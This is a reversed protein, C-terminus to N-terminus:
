FDATLSLSYRRAELLFFQGNASPNWRFVNTLNQVQARLTAPADGISFRYRTGLNVVTRGPEKVTNARNFFVSSTNEVQGDVSMGNWTKPGYQLNVTSVRPTRGLPVTTLPAPGTNNIVRARLLVTGAVITLGPAAQGTLSLEVGRHTVNGVQRYVRASDIDFYPKKVEFVGAVLRLAPTLTFRFGADV